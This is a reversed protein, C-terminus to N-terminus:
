LGVLTWCPGLSARCHEGAEKQKGATVGAGSSCDQQWQRLQSQQQVKLGPHRSVRLVHNHEAASAAAAGSCSAPKCAASPGWCVKGSCNVGDAACPTTAAVGVAAPPVGQGLLASRQMKLQLRNAQRIRAIDERLEVANHNLIYSTGFCAFSCPQLSTAAVQAQGKHCSGIKMRAYINVM